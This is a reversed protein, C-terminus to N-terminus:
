KKKELDENVSEDQVKKLELTDLSCLLNTLTGKPSLYTGFEDIEKIKREIVAVLASKSIYQEM